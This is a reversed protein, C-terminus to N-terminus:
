RQIRDNHGALAANVFVNKWDLSETQTQSVTHSLNERSWDQFHRLKELETNFFWIAVSFFLLASALQLFQYWPRLIVSGTSGLNTM